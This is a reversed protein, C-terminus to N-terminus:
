QVNLKLTVVANNSTGTETAVLKIYPYMPPDFSLGGHGAGAVGSTKTLGTAISGGGSGTGTPTFFDGDSRNCVTYSISLTGDGTIIYEISFFGNSAASKLCIAPSTEATNKVVTKAGNFVNYSTIRRIM